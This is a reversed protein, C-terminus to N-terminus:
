SVVTEDEVWTLYTEGDNTLDSVGAFNYQVDSDVIEGSLKKLGSVAVISTRL